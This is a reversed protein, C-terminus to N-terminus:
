KIILLIGKGPAVAIGDRPKLTRAEQMGQVAPVEFVARSADLGLAKWNVNLTVTVPTPAWNAIAV